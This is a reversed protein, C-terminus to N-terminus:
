AGLPAAQEAPARQQELASVKEVLAEVQQKLAKIEAEQAPSGGDAAFAPIEVAATGNTGTAASEAAFVPLVFQTGVVAAIIAQKLKLTKM